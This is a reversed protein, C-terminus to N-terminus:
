SKFRSHYRLQRLSSSTLMTYTIPSQNSSPPSTAEESWGEEGPQPEEPHEQQWLLKTEPRGHRCPLVWECQCSWTPFLFSSFGSLWSSLRTSRWPNLSKRERIREKKKKWEMWTDNREWKRVKGSGSWSMGADWGKRYERNSKRRGKAGEEELAGKRRGWKRRRM